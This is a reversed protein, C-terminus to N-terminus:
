GGAAYTGGGAGLTSGAGAWNRWMLRYATEVDRALMGADMLPSQQMRQRLGPRLQIWRGFDRALAAYDQPSRAILEPLGANSLISCGGRGVATQGSLTVVPVGM